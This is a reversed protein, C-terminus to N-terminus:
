DAMAFALGWCEVAGSPRVGCTNRDGSDLQVFTGSPAKVRDEFKDYVPWCVVTGNTRIACGQGYTLTVRSFTEGEPSTFFIGKKDWCQVQGSPRLGCTDRQGAAVETFAGSPPPGLAFAYGWCQVAEDSRVACTHDLGSSLQTFTGAPAETQGITNDGWCAVTGEVRLGCSFAWFSDGGSTVATFVGSPPENELNYNSGWCFLSGGTRIGCNHEESSSLQTFTIPVETEPDKPTEAAGWSNNGWCSATGDSGLGCTHYQAVSVETFTGALPEGQGFDYVSWCFVSKDERLGCPQGSNSSLQTFSGSPLPSHTAQGAADFATGWCDVSEDLRIGCTYNPGASLHMFNGEHPTSQSVNDYGWCVAEGGPRLGCSHLWSATLQTFTGAPPSSQFRFDDGWCAATGDERLGCTHGGGAALQIFTGAPPTSTGEINSGWCVATHDPKLLCTHNRGTAVDIYPGDSSSAEGFDDEGWCLLKGNTRLGCTHDDAASIRAFDGPPPSSEGYEDSGWCTVSGNERLLCTHHDGAVLKEVPNLSGGSSSSAVAFSVEYLGTASRQGTADTAFVFFSVFENTGEPPLIALSGDPSLVVWDPVRGINASITSIAFTYPPTGGSAEIQWHTVEGAPIAGIELNELHIDRSTKPKGKFSFTIRPPFAEDGALDAVKHFFDTVLVASSIKKLLKKAIGAADICTRLGDIASGVSAGSSGGNYIVGAACNIVNAPVSISESAQKLLSWAMMAGASGDRSAGKISVPQEGVLESPRDVAITASAGPALVFSSSGNAPDVQALAQAISGDISVSWPGSRDINFAAGEIHVLQAYGRNNVINIRLTGADTRNSICAPLAENRGMPFSAGTIWDPVEGCNGPLDTRNHTIRGALWTGYDVVDIPSFSDLTASVAGSSVTTKEPVWVGSADLGHLVLPKGGSALSSARYRFSVKVPKKPEGQSTSVTYPGGVISDSGSGAFRKPAGKKVVLIEGRGIAGKPAEIALSGLQLRVPGGRSRVAKRRLKKGRKGKAHKHKGSHKGHKGTAKGPQQAGSAPAAALACVALAAAM